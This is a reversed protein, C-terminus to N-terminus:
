HRHYQLAQLNYATNVCKFLPKTNISIEYNKLAIVLDISTKKQLSRYIGRLLSIMVLQNYCQGPTQLFLFLSLSLVMNNM